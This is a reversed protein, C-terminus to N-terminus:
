RREGGHFRRESVKSVARLAAKAYAVDLSAHRAVVGMVGPHRPHFFVTHKGGERSEFGHMKYYRVVDRRRCAGRSRELRERLKRRQTM